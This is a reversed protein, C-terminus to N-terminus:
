GNKPPPLMMGLRSRKAPPECPQPDAKPVEDKETGPAAGAAGKVEEESEGGVEIESPDMSAGSAAEQTETEAAPAPPPGDRLMSLLAMTQPNEGPPPLEAFQAPTM